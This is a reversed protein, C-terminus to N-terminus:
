VDRRDHYNMSLSSSPDILTTTCRNYNTTQVVMDLPCVINAPKYQPTVQHVRLYQNNSETATRVTTFFASSTDITNPLANHIGRYQNGYRDQVLGGQAWLLISEPTRVEFREPEACVLGSELQRTSTQPPPEVELRKARAGRRRSLRRTAKARTDLGHSPASLGGQRSSSARSRRDM